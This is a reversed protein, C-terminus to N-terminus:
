LLSRPIGMQSDVLNIEVFGLVFIRGWGGLGGLDEGRKKNCV